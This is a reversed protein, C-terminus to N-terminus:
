SEFRMINIKEELVNGKIDHKILGEVFDKEKLINPLIRRIFGILKYFKIKNLGVWQLEGETCDAFKINPAEATYVFLIWSSDKGELVTKLVGKLKVNKINLGTEEKVERVCSSNIDEDFNTKGGVGTFMNAM